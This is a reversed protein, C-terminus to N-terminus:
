LFYISQNWTSLELFGRGANPRQITPRTPRMVCTGQGRSSSHGNYCAIVALVQRGEPCTGPMHLHGFNGCEGTEHRDLYWLDRGLVAPLQAFVLPEVQWSLFKPLPPQGPM